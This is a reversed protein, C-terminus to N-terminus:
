KFFDSREIRGTLRDITCAFSKTSYAVLPEVSAIRYYADGTVTTPLEAVWLEDGENSLAVLNPFTGWPRPKDDPDFLVVVLSGAARADLVRHQTPVARGDISLHGDLIDVAVTHLDGM